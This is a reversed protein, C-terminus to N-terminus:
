DMGDFVLRGSAPRHLGVLCRALTTKGSGSEGVVGLTECSTLGFSVGDLAHVAKPDDESAREPYTAVLDSVVLLDGSSSAKSDAEQLAARRTEGLNRWRYCRVYHGRTVAEIPPFETTCSDAAYDCRPAFFCGPPRQGPPPTTGRLGTLRRRKDFSGPIAELLRRTYPHRPGSFLADKPAAEVVRGGYMVAVSDAIESVVALDHTVYVMSLHYTRRLQDILALIRAQTTVDLGTTPEDLVVVRPRCVLAMAIVVRQQQGGSLQHPYHTRFGAPLHVDELLEAARGEREPEEPRHFELMEEVQRGVRLGPNLAASPDQPVFSIERGRFRRLRASSLDLVDVGDVVIEGRAIRSGPRAYGLCAMATTTKGCGSEGVLALVEGRAVEFSM